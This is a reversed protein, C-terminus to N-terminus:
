ADRSRRCASLSKWTFTLASIRSSCKVLYISSILHSRVGAGSVPVAGPRCLASLTSADAVLPHRPARRWRLGVRRVAAGSAGRRAGGYPRRRLPRPRGKGRRDRGHVAARGPRRPLRPSRRRSVRRFRGRRPPVAPAGLAPLHTQPRPGVFRHPRRRHRGAARDGASLGPPELDPPWRRKATYGLCLRRIALRTILQFRVQGPLDADQTSVPKGAGPMM